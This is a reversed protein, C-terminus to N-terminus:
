ALPAQFFRRRYSRAGAYWAGPKLFSWLVVTAIFLPHLLAWVLTTLGWLDRRELQGTAVGMGFFEVGLKLAWLGFVWPALAPAFPVLIVGLTLFISQFGLIAISSIFAPHYHM